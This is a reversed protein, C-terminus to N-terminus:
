ADEEFVIKSLRKPAPGAPTAAERYDNQIMDSAIDTRPYRRVFGFYVALGKDAAMLSDLRPSVTRMVPDDERNLQLGFNEVMQIHQRIMQEEGAVGRNANVATVNFTRTLPGKVALGCSMMYTRRGMIDSTLTICNTGWLQVSQKMQGLGPAFMEQVYAITRGTEPDIPFEEPTTDFRMGHVAILHQLDLTNSYLMFPDMPVEVSRLANFALAEEEIGFNPVPYAPTEGNYAWVLGLAEVTPFKFLKARQPPTEGLANGVCRGTQDYRWHHYPCRLEAGIVKGISLDVGLHRCFASLVQAPGGGEPRYVVVRGNLFEFGRVDGAPVEDRLCVPYWNEDYGGVGQPSFRVGREYHGGESEAAPKKTTAKRTV